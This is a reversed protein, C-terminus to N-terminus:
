NVSRFAELSEKQEVEIEFLNPNQMSATKTPESYSLVSSYGYETETNQISYVTHMGVVKCVYQLYVPTIANHEYELQAEVFYQQVTTVTHQPFLYKLHTLHLHTLHLGHRIM